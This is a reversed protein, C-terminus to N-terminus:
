KGQWYQSIISSLSSLYNTPSLLSRVKEAIVPNARHLYRELKEPSITNAMSALDIGAVGRAHDFLKESDLVLIVELLNFMALQGTYKLAVDWINLLIESMDESQIFDFFTNRHLLPWNQFSIKLFQVLFGTDNIKKGTQLLPRKLCDTKLLLETVENREKEDIKQLFEFIVQHVVDDFISNPQFLPHGLIAKVLSTNQMRCALEFLSPDSWDREQPPRHAENIWFGKNLDEGYKAQWKPDTAISFYISPPRNCLSNKLPYNREIFQYLSMDIAKLFEQGKYQYAGLARETKELCNAFMRVGDAWYSSADENIFRQGWPTNKLANEYTTQLDKRFAENKFGMMDEILHAVQHVITGTTLGRKRLVIEHNCKKSAGEQFRDWFAYYGAWNSNETLVPDDDTVQILFYRENEKLSSILTENKIKLHHKNQWFNNCDIADQLLDPLPRLMEEFVQHLRDYIEQDEFADGEEIDILVYGLDDAFSRGLFALQPIPTNFINKLYPFYHGTASGKDQSEPVYLDVRLSEQPVGEKELSLGNYSEDDEPSELSLLNDWYDSGGLCFSSLTIVYFWVLAGKLYTM